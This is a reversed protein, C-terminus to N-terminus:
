AGPRCYHQYALLVEYLDTSITIEDDGFDQLWGRRSNVADALTEIVERLPVKIHDQRASLPISIVDAGDEPGYYVRLRSGTM